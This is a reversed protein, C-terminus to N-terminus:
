EELKTLRGVYDKIIAFGHQCQAFKTQGKGCPPHIIWVLDCSYDDWYDQAATYYISVM